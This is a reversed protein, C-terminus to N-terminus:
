RTWALLIGELVRADTRVSEARIYGLVALGHGVEDASLVVVATHVVARRAVVLAGAITTGLVGASSLVGSADVGGGSGAGGCSRRCGAGGAAAEVAETVPVRAVRGAAFAAGTRQSKVEAGLVAQGHDNAAEDTARSDQELCSESNWARM